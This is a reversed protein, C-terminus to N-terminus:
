ERMRKVQYSIMIKQTIVLEKGSDDEFNNSSPTPTFNTNATSRSQVSQYVKKSSYHNSETTEVIEVGVIPNGAEKSGTLRIEPPVDEGGSDSLTFDAKKSDRRHQHQQAASETEHIRREMPLLLLSNNRYLM